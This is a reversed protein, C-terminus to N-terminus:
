KLKNLTEIIFDIYEAPVEIESQEDMFILRGNESEITIMGETDAYSYAKYDSKSKTEKKEEKEFPIIMDDKISMPELLKPTSDVDITLMGKEEEIEEDTIGLVAKLLERVADAAEEESYRPGIKNDETDLDLSKVFSKEYEDKYEEWEEDTFEKSISSTLNITFNNYKRRDSIVNVSYIKDSQEALDAIHNRMYDLDLNFGNIIITNSLEDDNVDRLVSLLNNEQTFKINEPSVEEGYIEQEIGLEMNCNFVVIPNIILDTESLRVGSEFIGAEINEKPVITYKIRSM